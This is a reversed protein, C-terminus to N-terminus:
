LLSFLISAQARWLINADPVANGLSPMFVGAGLKMQFGSSSNWMLQWNFEPGLFFGDSDVSTLPYNKYTGLDSRIFYTASLESSIYDSLGSIINFSVITLGTFKANLLNGQPVTTLPLFAGVPINEFVGSTYIGQLTIKNERRTPMVLTLGAKAAVAMSMSEFGENIGEYIGNYQILEFCGGLDLVLYESPISVNMILYQSDLSGGSFDFQGLLSFKVNMYGGVSPHDWSLAALVRAPAFYTNMFDDFSYGESCYKEEDETMAIAARTKYLYGTYWGGMSFTGIGTEFSLLGGDFYGSAIIGGMPDNYEMRGLKFESKSSRFAMEALLLEPVYFWPDVRYTFSAAIVFEGNNGLLTSFYPIVSGSYDYKRDEFEMGHANFVASQDILIGIDQAHLVIPTAAMIFIIFWRLKFFKKRM